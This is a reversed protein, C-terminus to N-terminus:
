EPDKEKVCVGLSERLKQQAFLAMQTVNIFDAFNPSEIEPDKPLTELDIELKFMLDDLSKLYEQNPNSVVKDLDRNFSESRKM